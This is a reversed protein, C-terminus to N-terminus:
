GASQWVSRQQRKPLLKELPGWETKSNTRRIIIPCM